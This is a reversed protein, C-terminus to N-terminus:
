SSAAPQYEAVWDIQMASPRSPCDITSPCFARQEFDLTMPIQPINQSATFEHWPHGDVVYIIQHPTWIVGWTHWQLMNIQLQQYQTHNIPAQGWHTTSTTLNAHGMNESFDIEPPWINPVPWLLEVSNPGGSTVRSRVFFAGYQVQRLCQCLGGTTWKGGYSPDRYTLLQLLGSSVEVHQASFKATPIGGPHGTFVEWGAPIGSGNFDNVYTLQYGPLDQPGPPAMSSPEQTNPVGVPYMSAANASLPALAVVLSLPLIAAM